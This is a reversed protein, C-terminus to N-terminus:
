KGPTRGALRLDKTNFETQREGTILQVGVRYTLYSWLWGLMVAIRSRTGLMFFVHVAGWLWWAVSGSLTTWGFDAVAQRRGITALSGRSQYRFPPPPAHGRLRARLVSAVYVGGQKAAPAVGPVASGDSTIAATDGIAFVEPWEPVSLDAAVKLRGARDPEQNLWMAAPSAVVGAAWIITAAEIRAGNVVAGAQDIDEVRSGVRVDVGLSELARRAAASLTEPFSPLVRDGSQVLIIRASAPDIRRYEGALGHRALEAIAGALEVGTPGGGCIVFTLCRAQEEPDEALEAREFAGLIRGRMAVADEVFKLGPAYAAWRDKGFYGHSAGTALVLYDYRIERGEVHVLRRVPDVGTVTGCLATVEPDDRFVSRIPVAIDGPSLSATAVQYLLPQFLHYNRRDILTVRVRERRLGGACAMGGFGAGVIVVHPADEDPRRPGEALADSLLRDLSLAGPGSVALLALLLPAYLSVGEDPAMMWTGSLTLLLVVAAVPTALGAAICFALPWALLRPLAAMTEVPFFAGPLPLGAVAAALWVRLLLRLWPGAARELWVGAAIAEAALPLASERVGKAFLRDLSLPGAGHIAYWAFLFAWFLTEDLHQYSFQIVLSLLLMALAAPRVFLGAALLISGGVEIGAGLVAAIHPDLWSVPYEQQALTLALPWNGLKLMGSTFFAGALSLRVFLDVFPAALRMGARVVGIAARLPVQVAASM